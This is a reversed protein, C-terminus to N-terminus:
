MVKINSNLIVFIVYKVNMGQGIVFMLKKFDAGDYCPKYVQMM